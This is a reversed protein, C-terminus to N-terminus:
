ARAILVRLRRTGFRGIAARLRGDSRHSHRSLRHVHSRVAVPTAGPALVTYGLVVVDANTPDLASRSCYVVVQYTGPATDAPVPVVGGFQGDLIDYQQLGQDVLGEGLEPASGVPMFLAAGGAGPCDMASLEIDDGAYGSSTDLSASFEPPLAAGEVTLEGVYHRLM